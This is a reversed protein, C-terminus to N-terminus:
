TMLLSINPVIKLEHVVKLFIIQLWFCVWLLQSATSMTFWNKRPFRSHSAPAIPRYPM